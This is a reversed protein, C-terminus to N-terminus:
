TRLDLREILIVPLEVKDAADKLDELQAPSVALV